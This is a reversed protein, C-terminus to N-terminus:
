MYAGNWPTSIWAFVKGEGNEREPISLGVKGVIFSCLHFKQAAEDEVSAMCLAVYYWSFQVNERLDRVYEFQIATSFLVVEYLFEVYFFVQEQERERNQEMTM